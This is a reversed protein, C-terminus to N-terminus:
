YIEKDGLKRLAKGKLRVSDLGDFFDEPEREVTQRKVTEGCIGQPLLRRKFCM